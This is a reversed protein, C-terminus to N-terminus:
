ANGSGTRFPGAAAGPQAKAKIEAIMQEQREAPIGRASWLSRLESEPDVAPRRTAGCTPCRCSEPNTM